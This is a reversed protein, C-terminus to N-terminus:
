TATTKVAHTVELDSAHEAGRPDWMFSRLLRLGATPLMSAIDGPSFMTPDWCTPDGVTPVVVCLWGAPALRSSWHALTARADIAHDLSNSYIAGFNVLDDPLSSFDCQRILESSTAIDTGVVSCKPFLDVFANIEHDNRVGNCLITKPSPRPLDIVHEAYFVSNSFGDRKANWRVCQKEVYDDHSSYTWTRM